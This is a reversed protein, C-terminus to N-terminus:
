KATLEMFATRRELKSPTDLVKRDVDLSSFCDLLMEHSNKGLAATFAAYGIRAGSAKTLLLIRRYLLNDMNYKNKATDAMVMPIIKQAAERATSCEVSIIKEPNIPTKLAAAKFAAIHETNGALFLQMSPRDANAFLALRLNDCGKRVNAQSSGEYGYIIIYNCQKPVLQKETKMVEHFIFDVADAQKKLVPAREPSANHLKEYASPSIESEIYSNIFDTELVDVATDAFLSIGITFFLCVMILLTVPCKKM